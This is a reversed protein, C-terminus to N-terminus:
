HFHPPLLGRLKAEGLRILVGFPLPLKIEKWYFAMITDSLSPNQMCLCVRAHVHMCLQEM